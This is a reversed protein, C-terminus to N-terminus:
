KPSTDPARPGPVPYLKAKGGQHTGPGPMTRASSYPTILQAPEVNFIDALQELTDISTGVQGAILRQVQSLSSGLLKGLKENRATITSLNQWKSDRLHKLNRGLAGRIM